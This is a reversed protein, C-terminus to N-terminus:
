VGTIYTDIRFQLLGSPRLETNYGRDVNWGIRRDSESLPVRVQTLKERLTIQLNQGCLTLKVNSVDQLLKGGRKEIERFLVTAIRRRRVEAAPTFPPPGFSPQKAPGWAQVIPHPGPSKPVVIPEDATREREIAESIERPLELGGFKAPTETIRIQEDQDAKRPPLPIRRVKKGFQMKMWHGAAPVPIDHRKCIKRLGVDSIGFEKALTRMPTSWVRKYLDARAIAHKKKSDAMRSANPCPERTSAGLPYM